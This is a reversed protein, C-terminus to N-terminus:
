TLFYWNTTRFDSFARKGGFQFLEKGVLSFTFQSSFKKNVNKEESFARKWRFEKSISLSGESQEESGESRQESRESREESGECREESGDSREAGRRMEM